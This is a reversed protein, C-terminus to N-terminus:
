IENIEYLIYYNNIQVAEVRQIELIAVAFFFCYLLIIENRFFSLPWLFFLRKCM